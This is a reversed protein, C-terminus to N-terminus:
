INSKSHKIISLYIGHIGSRELVKLMFDLFYRDLFDDMGHLNELETPYLSKYYIKIKKKKKSNGRNTIDIKM